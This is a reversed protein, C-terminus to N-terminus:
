MLLHSFIHIVKLIHVENDICRGYIVVTQFLLTIYQNLTMLVLKCVMVSVDQDSLLSYILILTSDECMVRMGSSQALMRGPWMCFVQHKLVNM